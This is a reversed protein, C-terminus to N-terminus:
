KINEFRQKARYIEIANDGLQSGFRGMWTDKSLKGCYCRDDQWGALAMYYGCEGCKAYLDPAMRWGPQGNKSTAKPGNGVYVFVTNQLLGSQQAVIQPDVNHLLNRTREAIVLCNEPLLGPEDGFAHVFIASIGKALEEANKAQEAKSLVEIAESEYESEPAGPFLGCPDWENIAQRVLLLKTKYENKLGHKQKSYSKM